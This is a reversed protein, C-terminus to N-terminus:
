EEKDKRGVTERLRVSEEESVYKIERRIKREKEDKRERKREREREKVGREREREREREKNPTDAHAAHDPALLSLGRLAITFKTPVCVAGEWGM